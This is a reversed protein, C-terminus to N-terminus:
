IGNEVTKYMEGSPSKLFKRLEKMNIRGKDDVLEPHSFFVLEPIDAIHRYSRDDSFGNNPGKRLEKCQEAIPDINQVHTYIFKDGQYQVDVLGNKLGHTKILKNQKKIIPM